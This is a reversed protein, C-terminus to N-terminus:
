LRWEKKIVIDSIATKDYVACITCNSVRRRINYRRDSEELQIYENGMVVDIPLGMEERAFNILYGDVFGVGRGTSVLKQTCRRQIYNLIRIGEYTTLDLMREEDVRINAEMLACFQNQQKYARYEAWLEAAREPAYGVGRVFFYAGDGLWHENGLSFTFGENLILEASDRTTGHYAIMEIMEAAFNVVIESDAM